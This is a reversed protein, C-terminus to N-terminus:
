GRCLAHISRLRERRAELKRRYAPNDTAAIESSMETIVEGLTSRLEEELEDSLEVMM